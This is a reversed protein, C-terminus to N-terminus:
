VPVLCSCVAGIWLQGANGGAVTLPAIMLMSVACGSTASCTSGPTVTATTASANTDVGFGFASYNGLSCTTNCTSPLAPGASTAFTPNSFTTSSNIWMVVIGDNIQTPTLSATTITSGTIAWATLTSKDIPLTAQGSIDLGVVRSVTAGAAGDSCGVSVAGGTPTARWVAYSGRDGLSSYTTTSGIQTVGSVGSSSVTMTPAVSTNDWLSCQWVIVDAAPPNVTFTASVSTTAATNFKSGNVAVAASAHSCLALAFAVALLLKM